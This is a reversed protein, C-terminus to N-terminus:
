FEGGCAACRPGDLGKMRAGCKGCLTARWGLGVRQMVLLSIVVGPGFAVAAGLAQGVPYVWSPHRQYNFGAVQGGLDGKPDMVGVWEAVRHTERISVWYLRTAAYAMTAFVLAGLVLALACRFLRATM